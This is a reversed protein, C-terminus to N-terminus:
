EHVKCSVALTVQTFLFAIVRRCLDKLVHVFTVRRRVRTGDGRQSRQQYRDYVMRAYATQM